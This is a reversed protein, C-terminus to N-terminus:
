KLNLSKRIVGSRKIKKVLNDLYRAIVMGESVRDALGSYLSETNKNMLAHIIENRYSCWKNMSIFKVRVEKIDLKDTYVKRIACLYKSKDANHYRNEAWTLTAEIIKKKGSIQNIPPFRFKNDECGDFMFKLENKSKKNDFKASQRTNLCGLYFLWARLRDEMIAYVILMAEFYFGNKVAKDYREFQTKYTVEKDFGDAVPQIKRESM